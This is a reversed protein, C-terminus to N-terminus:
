FHIRCRNGRPCKKNEGQVLCVPSFVGTAYKLQLRAEPASAASHVEAGLTRLVRARAERSRGDVDVLLVTKRTWSNAAANGRTGAGADARM